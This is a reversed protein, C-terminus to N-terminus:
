ETDLVRRGRGRTGSTLNEIRSIMGDCMRRCTSTRRPRTGSAPTPSEVNLSVVSSTNTSPHQSAEAAAAATFSKQEANLNSAQQLLSEMKSNRASLWHPWLEPKALTQRAFSEPGGGDESKCRQLFIVYAEPGVASKSNSLASVRDDNFYHWAGNERGGVRCTATYHGSGFPGLHNAVCAVEYCAGQRQVSSCYETLDLVEPAMLEKDIKRFRMSRADFEFRKLHLVLVPPLKWLDFKMRADVKKGCRECFWREDGTLLEEKLYDELADTVKTMERRVPVSLYLFPEFRRSRYGCTVCTRSSQLQGQLTDVLFSRGRELYRKWFLAAVFEDGQEEALREEETERKESSSSSAPRTVVRNLDEHLGDLVFALFEQVDQQEYGEFLHPAFKRFSRHLSRPDHSSSASLWLSRLLEAFAKALKGQNGLFNDRNIDNEYHGNLFYVALPEVHALCQLGANMFCTNGLNRLGVKGSQPHFKLGDCRALPPQDAQGARDRRNM